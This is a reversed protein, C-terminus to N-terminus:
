LGTSPYGLPNCCDSDRAVAPCAPGSAPAMPSRMAAYAFNVSAAGTWGRGPGGARGRLDPGLGVGEGPRRDAGLVDTGVGAAFSRDAGTQEAAEDFDVTGVRRAVGLICRHM